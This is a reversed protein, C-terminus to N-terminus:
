CQLECGGIIETGPYKVSNASVELELVLSNFNPSVSVLELCDPFYISVEKLFCGLSRWSCGCRPAIEEALAQKDWVHCGPRM